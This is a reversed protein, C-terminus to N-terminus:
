LNGGYKGYFWSECYNRIVWNKDNLFARDRQSQKHFRDAFMATIYIDEHCVGLNQDCEMLNNWAANYDLRLKSNIHALCVSMIWGSAAILILARKKM